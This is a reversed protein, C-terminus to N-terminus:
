EPVGHRAARDQLQKQTQERNYKYWEMMYAHIESNTMQGDKDKDMAAFRASAAALYEERSLKSDGNKDADRIQAPSTGMLTNGSLGGGAGTGAFPSKQALAAGCTAALLIGAMVFIKGTM